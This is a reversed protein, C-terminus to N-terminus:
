VIQVPPARPQPIGRRVASAPASVWEVLSASGVTSDLRLERPETLGANSGPANRGLSCHGAHSLCGGASEVHPQSRESDGSEGHYALADVSPLSTGASLFIALLLLAKVRFLLPSRAPGSRHM